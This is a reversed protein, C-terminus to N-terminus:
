IPLKVEYIWLPWFGLKPVGYNYNLICFWVMNGHLEPGMALLNHTTPFSPRSTRRLSKLKACIILLHLFRGSVMLENGPLESLINMVARSQVQFEHTAQEYNPYPHGDLRSIGGPWQRPLIYRFIYKQQLYLSFHSIKVPTIIPTLSLSPHEQKLRSFAFNQM